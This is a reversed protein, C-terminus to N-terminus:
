EKHGYQGIWDLSPTRRDAGGQGAQQGSSEEKMDAGSCFARGSATLVICRVDPDENTHIWAARLDTHMQGTLGNLREPRDLTVWAVNGRLEYKAHGYPTEWAM